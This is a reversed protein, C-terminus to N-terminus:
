KLSHTAVLTSSPPTFMEVRSQEKSGKAIKIKIKNKNQQQCEKSRDEEKNNERERDNNRKIIKIPESGGMRSEFVRRLTERKASEKRGERGQM